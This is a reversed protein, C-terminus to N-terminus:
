LEAWDFKTPSDVNSKQIVTKHKKISHYYKKNLKRNCIHCCSKYGSKKSKDKPWYDDTLPFSKKCIYCQRLKTVIPSRKPILPM